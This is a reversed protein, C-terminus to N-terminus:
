KRSWPPGQSSLATGLVSQMATFGASALASPDVGSEKVEYYRDLASELFRRTEVYGESKDTLLFLQTSSYISFLIARDTYWDSRTPHLGAYEVLDDALDAALQTSHLVQEPGLMLALASPWSSAYPMIYEMHGEIAKFLMDKEKVGEDNVKHSEDVVEGEVIEEAEQRAGGDTGTSDGAVLSSNVFDRKKRLFLEVIEAPGREVIKHSLPPLGIDVAAQALARESWGHEHVHSLAKELILVRKDGGEPAGESFLACQGVKYGCRPRIFAGAVGRVRLM